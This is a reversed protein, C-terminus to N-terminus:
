FTTSIVTWNKSKNKWIHQCLFLRITPKPQHHDRVVKAYEGETKHHRNILDGLLDRILFSKSSEQM